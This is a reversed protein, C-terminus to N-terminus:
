SLFYLQVLIQEEQIQFQCDDTAVTVPRTALSFTTPVNPTKNPIDSAVSCSGVSRAETALMNVTALANANIANLISQAGQKAAIPAM